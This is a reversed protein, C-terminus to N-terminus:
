LRDLGDTRMSRHQFFGINGQYTFWKPFTKLTLGVNPEVDTFSTNSCLPCKRVRQVDVFICRCKGCELKTM